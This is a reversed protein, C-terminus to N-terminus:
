SGRLNEIAENFESLYEQNAERVTKNPDFVGRVIKTGHYLEGLVGGVIGVAMGPLSFRRAGAAGACMWREFMDSPLKKLTEKSKTANDREEKLLALEDNLVKSRPEDKAKLADEMEEHLAKIEAEQGKIIANLDTELQAGAATQQLTAGPMSLEEQMQLVIPNKNLLKYMVRRATGRTNDHGFTTAGADCLPKFYQEETELEQEL